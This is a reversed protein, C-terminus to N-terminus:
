TDYGNSRRGHLNVTPLASKRSRKSVATSSLPIGLLCAATCVTLLPLRLVREISVLDLELPM